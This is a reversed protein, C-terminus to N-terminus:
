SPHSSMQHFDKLLPCLSTMLNGFNYEFVFCFFRQSSYLFNMYNNLGKIKIEKIQVASCNMRCWVPYALLPSSHYLISLHHLLDYENTGEIFELIKLPRWIKLLVGTTQEAVSYLNVVCRSNRPSFTNIYELASQM